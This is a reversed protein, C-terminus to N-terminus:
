YLQKLSSGPFYHALIRNFAWGRKALSQAGAQCMGVGHGFGAGALAGGTIFGAGDRTWDAVFAASRLGGFLRRINLEKMVTKDGKEGKFTLRYMRGSFGRAIDTITKIRGVRWSNNRGIEM